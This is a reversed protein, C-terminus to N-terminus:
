FVFLKAQSPFLHFVIFYDIHRYLQCYFLDIFTCIGKVVKGGYEGNWTNNNKILNMASRKWRKFYFKVFSLYCFLFLRLFLFSIINILISNQLIKIQYIKNTTGIYYQFIVIISFIDYSYKTQYRINCVKIWKESFVNLNMTSWCWGYKPRFWLSSAM